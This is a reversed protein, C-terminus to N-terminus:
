KGYSPTLSVFLKSSRVFGLIATTIHAHANENELNHCSSLLALIINEPQMRSYIPNAQHQQQWKPTYAYARHGHLNKMICEACTCTHFTNYVAVPGHHGCSDMYADRQSYGQNHSQPVFDLFNWFNTGTWRFILHPKRIKLFGSKFLHVEQCCSCVYQM